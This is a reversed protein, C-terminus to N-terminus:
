STGERAIPLMALVAPTSWVLTRCTVFYEILLPIQLLDRGQSSYVSKHTTRSGHKSLIALMGFAMQSVDATADRLAIRLAEVTRLIEFAVEPAAVIRAGHAAAGVKARNYLAFIGLSAEGASIVEQPM